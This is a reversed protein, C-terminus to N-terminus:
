ICPIARLIAFFLISSLHLEKHVRLAKRKLNSACTKSILKMFSLYAFKRKQLQWIHFHAHLARFLVPLFFLIMIVITILLTFLNISEIFSLNPATRQQLCTEYIPKDLIREEM